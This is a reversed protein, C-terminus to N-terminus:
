GLLRNLVSRAAAAQDVGLRELKEGGDLSEPPLAQLAAAALSGCRESSEAGEPYLLRLGRKDGESLELGEGVPACPSPDTHYFFPPFRYLMVSEPDFVGAAGDEVGESRLNFDIKARDWNNPPGGLYTYIGPRRGHPDPVFRGDSDTTPVYWQDDEWRFEDQCPGRMNQHEHNFALAHLFEHLVTRRWTSPLEEEFGGFNMSQQNPRGGVDDLPRGVAYDVSATGVLSWYGSKDFGIRIDASYETDETSWSRFGGAEDLGFDLTLSCAQSIAAAVDVISRHLQPSGGRFAVTVTSGPRWKVADAVLFELDPDRSAASQRWRARAALSQALGEPYDELLDDYLVTVGEGYYAVM